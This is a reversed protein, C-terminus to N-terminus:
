FHIPHPPCRSGTMYMSITIAEEVYSLMIGPLSYLLSVDVLLTEMMMNQRRLLPSNALLFMTCTYTIMWNGNM